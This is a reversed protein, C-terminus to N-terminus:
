KVAKFFMFCLTARKVVNMKKMKDQMNATKPLKPM